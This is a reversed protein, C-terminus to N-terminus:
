RFTGGIIQKVAVELFQKYGPHLNNKVRKETLVTCHFDKTSPQMLKGKETASIKQQEVKSEQSNFSLHLKGAPQCYVLLMEHVYTYNSPLKFSNGRRTYKLIKSIWSIKIIKFCFNYM